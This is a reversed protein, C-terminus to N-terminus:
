EGIWYSKYKDKDTVGANVLEGIHNNEIQDKFTALRSGYSCFILVINFM